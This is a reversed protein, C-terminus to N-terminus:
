FNLLAQDCSFIGCPSFIGVQAIFHVLLGVAFAIILIFLIRPLRAKKAHIRWTWIYFTLFVLIAISMMIFLLLEPNITGMHTTTPGEGPRLPREFLVFLINEIDKWTVLVIWWLAVTSIMLSIFFRTFRNQMYTTYCKERRLSPSEDRSIPSTVCQKATSVEGRKAPRPAAVLMGESRKPIKCGLTAERAKCNM